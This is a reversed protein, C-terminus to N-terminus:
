AARWFADPLRKVINLWWAGPIAHQVLYHAGRVNIVEFQTMPIHANIM